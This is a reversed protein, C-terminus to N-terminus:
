ASTERRLDRVPFGGAELRRVVSMTDRPEVEVWIGTGNLRASIGEKALAALASDRQECRELEIWLPRQSAALQSFEVATMLRAPNGEELWLVDDALAEVEEVRHSTMVIARGGKLQALIQLLEKRSAADLNSCPEDLVLLPPDALLAQALALKQKMGGSLDCVRKELEVALGCRELAPIIKVADIGRLNAVFEMAQRVSWDYGAFEQAVYGLRARAEHGRRLADHGFISIEGEFEYLGLLCKILTSKGAGNPGWLVLTRGAALRADVGSLVPRVGFSKRVGGLVLAEGGRQKLAARGRRRRLFGPVGLLLGSLSALGM